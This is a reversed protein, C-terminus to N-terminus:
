NKNLLTKIMVDEKIVDNLYKFIKEDYGGIPEDSLAKIFYNILNEKNIQESNFLVSFSQSLQPDIESTYPKALYDFCLFQKDNLIVKKLIEFENLKKLIYSYDQFTNVIKLKKRLLNMQSENKKNEKCNFFNLILARSYSCFGIKESNKIEVKEQKKFSDNVYNNQFELKNNINKSQQSCNLNKTNVNEKPQIKEKEFKEDIIFLDIMYSRIFTSFLNLLALILKMFGGLAALVDQLKQYTRNYKRFKDNLSFKINFLPLKKGDFPTQQISYVQPALETREEVSDILWGADNSLYQLDWNISAYTIYSNLFTIPYLITKNIFPNEAEPKFGLQKTYISIPISTTVAPIDKNCTIGKSTMNALITAPIKSCEDNSIVYMGGNSLEFDNLNFCYFSFTFAYKTFNVDSFHKDLFDQQCEELYYSIVTNNKLNTVKLKSYTFFSKYTSIVVPKVPYETGNLIPIESDQFLGEEISIKPNKRKFFDNGFSLVCLILIILTLLSLLGGSLTKFKTQNNIRLQFYNGYIDFLRIFKGLKSM